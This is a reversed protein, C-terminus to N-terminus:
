FSTSSQILTLQALFCTTSKFFFLARLTNSKKHEAVYKLAITQPFSFFITIKHAQLM